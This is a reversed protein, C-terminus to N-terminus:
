MLKGAPVSRYQGVAPAKLDKGQGLQPPNFFLAHMKSGMHVPALQEDPRLFAHPNLRMQAGGDGHSKVFAYFIWSSIRIGLIGAGAGGTPQPAAPIFHLMQITQRIRKIGM